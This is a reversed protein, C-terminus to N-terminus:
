ESSLYILGLPVVVMWLNDSVAEVTHQAVKMAKKVVPTIPAVLPVQKVAKVVEKENAALVKTTSRGAKRTLVTIATITSALVVAFAGVIGARRMRQKFMELREMDNFQDVLHELIWATMLM